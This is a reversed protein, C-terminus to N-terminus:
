PSPPIFPVTQYLRHYIIIINRTKRRWQEPQKDHRVRRQKPSINQATKKQRALGWPLLTRGEAVRMM